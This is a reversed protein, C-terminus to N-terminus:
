APQPVWKQFRTNYTCRMPMSEAVTSAAFLARLAKSLALNPVCAVHKAGTARDQLEYVDPLGTKKVHFTRAEEEKLAPAAAESLADSADSDDSAAPTSSGGAYPVTVRAEEGRLMFERSTKTRRQAAQERGRNVDEKERLDLLIDRFKLYMSKFIVGRTRYPLAASFARLADVQDYTFYRKVQMRCPDTADAEFMKDLIHYVRNVRKVLSANNLRVGSEVILDSIIFTWTGTEDRVMEGELVSGGDAFLRGAFLFKTLIMRPQFYGQQIKRDVFVCQPVASATTTLFLYYPNGHTRLALLHPNSAIARGAAATGYADYQRTLVSVEHADLAATIRQKDEDSKINFGVGDCFSITGTHM